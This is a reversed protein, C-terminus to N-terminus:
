QALTIVIDSVTCGTKRCVVDEVQARETDSLETKNIVVDVCDDSISVISDGFGKAALISEAEQEKEANETLKIYADTASQVAAEDMGDGNIIELLTEKNQSRNQERNLKIDVFRNPNIDASALVAEGIHEEDSNLQIYEDGELEAVEMEGAPDTNGTVVTSDSPTGQVTDDGAFASETPEKEGSALDLKNGSFNIYGAVGLLVTLAGIIIQNRKMTKNKM